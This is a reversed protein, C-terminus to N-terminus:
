IRPRNLRVNRGHRTRISGRKGEPNHKKGQLIGELKKKTVPCLM